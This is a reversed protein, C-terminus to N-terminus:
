SAEKRKEHERVQDRLKRLAEVGQRGVFVASVRGQEAPKWTISHGPKKSHPM